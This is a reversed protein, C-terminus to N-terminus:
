LHMSAAYEYKDHTFDFKIAEVFVYFDLIFCGFMCLAFLIKKKRFFFSFMCLHFYGIFFARVVIFFFQLQLLPLFEIAGVVLAVCEYLLTCYVIYGNYGIFLYIFIHSTASIQRQYLCFSQLCIDCKPFFLVQATISISICSSYLCQRSLFYLLWFSFFFQM